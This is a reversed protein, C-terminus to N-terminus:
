RRRYPPLDPPLAAPCRLGVLVNRGKDDVAAITSNAKGLIFRSDSLEVRAWPNRAFNRSAEVRVLLKGPEGFRFPYPGLEIGPTTNSGKLWPTVREVGNITLHVKPYTVGINPMLASGQPVVVSDIVVTYEGGRRLTELWQWFREVEARMARVPHRGELYAKAKIGAEELSVGARDKVLQRIVAYEARDDERRRADRILDDFDTKWRSGPHEDLFRRYCV